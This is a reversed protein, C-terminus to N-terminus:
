VNFLVGPRVLCGSMLLCHPSHNFISIGEKWLEREGQEGGRVPADGYLSCLLLGTGNQEASPEKM